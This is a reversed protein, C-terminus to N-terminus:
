SENKYAAKILGSISSANKIFYATLMSQKFLAQLIDNEEHDNYNLRKAIAISTVILPQRQLLKTIGIVDGDSQSM